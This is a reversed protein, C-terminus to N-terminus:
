FAAMEAINNNNDRAATAFHCGLLLIGVHFSCWARAQNIVHAIITLGIRLAYM